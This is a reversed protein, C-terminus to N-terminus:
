RRSCAPSFQPSTRSLGQKAEVLWAAVLVAGVAGRPLVWEQIFWSVELKIAEFGAATLAVLVGDGLALLAYYVVWEGTFRVFDM